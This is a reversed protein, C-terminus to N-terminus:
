ARIFLLVIKTKKIYKQHTTTSPFIQLYLQARIQNISSTAFQKSKAYYELSAKFTM